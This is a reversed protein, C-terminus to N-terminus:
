GNFNSVELKRPCRSRVDALVDEISELVDAEYVIVEYVSEDATSFHSECM